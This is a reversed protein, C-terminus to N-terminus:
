ELFRGDGAGVEVFDVPGKIREVEFAFVRALAAAFAASVHPSTVFDGPEGIAAGRAYYGEEPDQLAAEMFDTFSIPGERAIRERLRDALSAVAARIITKLSAAARRAFRRGRPPREGGRPRPRRSWACPRAAVWRRPSSRRRRPRSRRRGRGTSPPRVAV